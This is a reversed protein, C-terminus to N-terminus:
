GRAEDASVAQRRALLRGGAAAVTEGEALPQWAEDSLPVSALLLVEQFGGGVRVGRAQLDQRDHRCRRALLHLGPPAIRGDAQLRRDSHAFLVEGDAYLFNAPGFPRLDAAFAAVAALRAQPTPPAAPDQWLPLLRQLLACFAQESDTQGVPRFRDPAFRPADAIGPLHGNHAFVHTRGALERVFPQTNALTVAGHTAHRIHAIALPTDPGQSQLLQALPSASAPAAERYLAADAGQYFAAGWGDRPGAASHAALATLSLSLRTAHRSSVALLECM